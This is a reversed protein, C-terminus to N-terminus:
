GEPAPVLLEWGAEVGIGPLWEPPAVLAPGTVECPAPCEEVAAVIGDELAATSAGDPVELVAGDGVLVLAGRVLEGELTGDGDLAALYAHHRNDGEPTRLEALEADDSVPSPYDPADILHQVPVGPSRPGSESVGDGESGDGTCAGLTVVFLLLVPLIRLVGTQM